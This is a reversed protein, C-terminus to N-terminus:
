TMRILSFKLISESPIIGINKLGTIIIFCLISNKESFIILQM